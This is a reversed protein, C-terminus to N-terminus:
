KGGLTTTPPNSTPPDSTPPNAIFALTVPIPIPISDSCGSISAVPTTTTGSISSGDTSTTFVPNSAGAHFAHAGTAGGQPFIDEMFELYEWGKNRFPRMHTNAKVAIYKSWAEAALVGSINAGHENDWHTPIYVAGIANYTQKLVGWKILVNKHDKVKGSIPMHLNVSAGLIMENQATSM